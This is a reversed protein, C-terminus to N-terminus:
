YVLSREIRSLEFSHVHEHKALCNYVFYLTVTVKPQCSLLSYLLRAALVIIGKLREYNILVSFIVIGSKIYTCAIREKRSKTTSLPELEM